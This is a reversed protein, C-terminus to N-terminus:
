ESWCIGPYSCGDRSCTSPCPELRGSRLEGALQVALTEADRLLEQLEDPERADNAVAATGLPAGQRFVGRARLDRGGLPQYLGAIPDLGLLERVALMYLAVQLQREVLWRAGQREPRTSGSKYDRVIAERGSPDVDVRDIVGRLLVADPEDGLRVAPLSEEAEDEGAGFGFRLELALPAWDCGDAAEHALYRRLDAEISRRLAARLGEPRGPGIEVGGESGDAPLEALVEGLVTLADGLSDPTVATGLRRLVRELVAHMYSGRTLADSDPEFPEPELQREVLWKVPCRGFSELAGGSVIERHRVHALAPEALRRVATRGGAGTGRRGARRPGAAAHARELERATPAEAAPWTVDALM